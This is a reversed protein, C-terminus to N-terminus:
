ALLRATDLLNIESDRLNALRSLLIRRDDALSFERRSLQAILSRPKRLHHTHELQLSPPISANGVYRRPANGRRRVGHDLSWTWNTSRRWKRSRTRPGGTCRLYRWSASGM